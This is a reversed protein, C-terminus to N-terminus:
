AATTTPLPRPDLDATTLIIGELRAAKIIYEINRSPIVGGRGGKNTPYAWKYIASPNWVKTPEVHRLLSALRRANGFKAIVREAQSKLETRAV